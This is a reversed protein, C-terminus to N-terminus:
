AAVINHIGEGDAVAAAMGDLDKLTAARVTVSGAVAYNLAAGKSLAKVYHTEGNMSVVYIKPERIVTM